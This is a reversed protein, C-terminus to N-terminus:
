WNVFAKNFINELIVDKIEEILNEEVNAFNDSSEFDSYHSFSKEYSLEDNFTNEYKVFVSITLRNKGVSENSNISIPTIQYKSIKGSFRLDGDFEVFDLNTQSIILDSLSETLIRRLLSPASSTSTKFYEVSFSKAESPISAGSFSYIGCCSLSTILLSIKILNYMKSAL